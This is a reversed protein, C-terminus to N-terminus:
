KLDIQDKLNFIEDFNNSKIESNMPNSSQDGKFWNLLEETQKKDLKSSSFKM